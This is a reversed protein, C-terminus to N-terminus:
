CGTLRVADYIAAPPARGDGQHLMSMTRATDRPRGHATPALNPNLHPRPTRAPDPSGRPRYSEPLGSPQGNQAQSSASPPITERLSILFGYAAICLSAHHHFGRWGRGEYHGLGLEQKLEQYDREIRWRLKATDVLQTITSDTSLTSLWYKTPAVEGAPWEILLWEEPHPESRDFDRHATRVRLAAFRSSLEANTGERWTVAQWAEDPLEEALAKASLPQHDADRRMRSTPRGKGSWPKPPLPGEGPRWVSLTPQVGVVYTLDLQTLGARFGGDAGYGADALIVGPAVGQAQATKIQELAIQPKTQFTVDDPVKATKRREPDDAWVQPLYLRWAIPLSAADNAVSLSVAVQCSDQKGLQGCYQRAVGVSHKGKKPFGTDDIIWARIAGRREIRPLVWDRVRGMLAEDSWPAQGVFHLLSQHKAAVRSPATVAALPEVSKREGPMLLGLCYDKLPEARDAHGIVGVLAEVYDDFAAESEDAWTSM